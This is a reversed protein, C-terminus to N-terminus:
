QVKKGNLYVSVKAKESVRAEGSFNKQTIVQACVEGSPPDEVKLEIHVQEPYSELIRTEHTLIYCPSPLEVTLSYKLVGGEYRTSLKVQDTNITKSDQNKTPQEPTKTTQYLFALVVSLVVTVTLFVIRVRPQRLDLNM